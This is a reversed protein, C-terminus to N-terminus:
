NEEKESIYRKYDLKRLQKRISRLEAGDTTKEKLALLRKVEAPVDAGLAAAKRVSTIKTNDLGLAAKRLEVVEKDREKQEAPSRVAISNLCRVIPLITDKPWQTKLQTISGYIETLRFIKGEVQVLTERETHQHLGEHYETKVKTM